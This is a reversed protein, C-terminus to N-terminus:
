SKKACIVVVNANQRPLKELKWGGYGCRGM